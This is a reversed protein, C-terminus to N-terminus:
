RMCLCRRYTDSRTPTTITAATTWQSAAGTRPTPMATGINIGGVPPQRSPMPIAVDRRGQGRDGATQPGQDASIEQIEALDLSQAERRTSPPRPYRQRSRKLPCERQRVRTVGPLTCGHCAKNYNQRELKARSRVQLAITVSSVYRSSIVM